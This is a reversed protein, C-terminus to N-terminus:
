WVHTFFSLILDTRLSSSLSVLGKAKNETADAGPRLKGVNCGGWMVSSLATFSPASQTRVSMDPSSSCSSFHCKRLQFPPLIKNCKPQESHLFSM